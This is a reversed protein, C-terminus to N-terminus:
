SDLLKVKVATDKCCTRAGDITRVVDAWHLDPAVMVDVEQLGYAKVADRVHERVFARNIHKRDSSTVCRAESIGTRGVCFKGDPTSTVHISVEGIEESLVFGHVADRKGVLLVPRTGKDRLAALTRQVREWPVDRAIALRVVPADPMVPELDELTLKVVPGDEAPVVGSADALLVGDVRAEYPNPGCAAALLVCAALITRM